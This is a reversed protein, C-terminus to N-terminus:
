LTCPWDSMGAYAMVQAFLAAALAHDAIGRQPFHQATPQILRRQRLASLGGTHRLLWAFCDFQWATLEEGLLPGRRFIGLM